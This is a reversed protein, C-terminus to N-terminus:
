IMRKKTGSNKWNTLNLRRIFTVPWLLPWGGVAEKEALWRAWGGVGAVFFFAASLLSRM